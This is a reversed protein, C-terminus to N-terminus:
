PEIKVSRFRHFGFQVVKHASAILASFGIACRAIEEIKYVRKADGDSRMM